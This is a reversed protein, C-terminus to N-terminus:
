LTPTQTFQALIAALADKARVVACCTDGSAEQGTPLQEIIELQEISALLAKAMAPSVNRALAIFAANGEESGGPLDGVTEAIWFGGAFNCSDNQRVAWGSNGRHDTTHESEWPGPTAAKEKELVDRLLSKLQDLTM